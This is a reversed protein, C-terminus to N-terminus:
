VCVTNLEGEKKQHANWLKATLEVFGEAINRKKVLFNLSFFIVSFFNYMKFNIYREKGEKRKGKCPIMAHCLAEDPFDMEPLHSSFHSDCAKLLYASIHGIALSM